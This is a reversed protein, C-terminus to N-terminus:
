LSSISNKIREKIENMKEESEYKKSPWFGKLGDDHSRPILHIHFHPVDTGVVSIAVYESDSGEKVAPMLKKAKLFLEKVLNDPTSLINEHHDKPIVLVHGEAVPNIDLFSLSIDDEHVITAPIENKVIKCFICDPNNM